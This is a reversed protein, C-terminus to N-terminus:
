TASSKGGHLLQLNVPEPGVMLPLETFGSPAPGESMDLAKLGHDVQTESRFYVRLKTFRTVM